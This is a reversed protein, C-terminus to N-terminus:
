AGGAGRCGASRKRSQGAGRRQEQAAVFHAVQARTNVVSFLGCARASNVSTSSGIASLAAARRSLNRPSRLVADMRGPKRVDPARHAAGSARLLWAGALVAYPLHICRTAWGNGHADGVLRLQLPARRRSFRIHTARDTRRVIARFETEQRAVSCVVQLQASRGDDASPALGLFTHHTHAAFHDRFYTCENEDSWQLHNDSSVSDYVHQTRM